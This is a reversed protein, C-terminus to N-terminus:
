RLRDGPRELEALVPPRRPPLREGWVAPLADLVRGLDVGRVAAGRSALEAARGHVVAACAGAALANGTQTLLTAAIGGLVDGSGAAALVPTGSASVVTRGTPDTIVTPVGKLLVTCDLTRALSAGIEFRQALVDAPLCGALRAFEAPHPTVLAPRGRLLDRLATADGEFVNLADADVVVPGRWVRLVREALARTWPYKGLGPGLLVGDAWTALTDEVADDSEPWPFALAEVAASQVAAINPQAVVLRVMGIGSRMAARAALIAAGAMGEGGGVIALKRRVGKHADALIPPIRARSWATGILEPLGAGDAHAGLGIDLVVLRGCQGRAILQGRKITGFTLTLDAVVGGEAGGTTADLGSPIDLAVIRAGNARRTRMEAIADAIAGRPAGSAGTGLLADVIIEEGGHPEQDRLMGAALAREARADDTHLEGVQRVRASIGAAALAGAVVWGDGGNNGPGAYIAVGRRLGRPFRLAIESAAAAGARQMLARAPMGASIARRDAAASEAATVVRVTVPV